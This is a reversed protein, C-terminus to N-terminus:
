DANEDSRRLHLAVSVRRASRVLRSLPLHSHGHESSSEASEQRQKEQQAETIQSRSVGHSIEAHVVVGFNGELAVPDANPVEDIQRLNGGILFQLPRIDRRSCDIRIRRCNDVVQSGSTRFQSVSESEIHIAHRCSKAKDRASDDKGGARAAKGGHLHTKNIFRGVWRSLRGPVPLLDSKM